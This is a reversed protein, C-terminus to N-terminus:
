KPVDGVVGEAYWDMTEIFEFSPKQCEELRLKGANDKIPGQFVAYEGDVIKTRWTMVKDHTEKPVASGLPAIELFRGELGTRYHKNIWKDSKGAQVDKVIQVYLEGWERDAGTIWGKKNFKQLDGSHYGVSYVERKAATELVPRPCDQNQRLVDAGLDLLANAAESAKGPNCWEGTYIVHTKVKPNVM